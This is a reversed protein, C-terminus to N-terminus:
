SWMKKLSYYRDDQNEVFFFGL